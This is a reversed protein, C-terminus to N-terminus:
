KEMECQYTGNKEGLMSKLTSAVKMLMKEIGRTNTYQGHKVYFDRDIVVNIMEVNKFRKMRNWLRRGFAEVANNVCSSRILDLRHPVTMVIVNIHKANRVFGLTHRIGDDSNSRAM